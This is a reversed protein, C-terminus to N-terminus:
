LGHRKLNEVYQVSKDLKFRLHIKRRMSVEQTFEHAIKSAASNLKKLFGKPAHLANVYIDAVGLDGSVEVARITCFGIDEPTFYRPLIPPIKEELIGAFRKSRPSMKM